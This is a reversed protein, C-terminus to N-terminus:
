MRSISNRKAGQGRYPRRRKPSYQQQRVVGSVLQAILNESVTAYADAISSGRPKLWAAAAWYAIADIADLEGLQGTIIGNQLAFSLTSAMYRMRVDRALLSGMFFISDTRWEWDGLSIGQQRSTLGGSATRDEMLGFNEVSGTTREWLVLPFILDQPLTPSSTPTVNGSVGSFSLQVQQGPDSILVPPITVIYEDEILTTQGNNALERAIRRAASNVFPLLNTDTAKQGQPDAVLSRILATIDMGQSYQTTSLVPM